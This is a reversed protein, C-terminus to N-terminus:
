GNNKGGDILRFNARAEDAAAKAQNAEAQDAERDLLLDIFNDANEVAYSVIQGAAKAALQPGGGAQRIIAEIDETLEEPTRYPARPM